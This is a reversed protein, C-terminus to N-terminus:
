HIDYVCLFLLTCMVPVKADEMDEHAERSPMNTSDDLGQM